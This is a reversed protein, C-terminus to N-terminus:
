LFLEKINKQQKKINAPFQNKCASYQGFQGKISLWQLNQARINLCDHEAFDSLELSELLLCSSIFKAVNIETFNFQLLKLTPLFKFGIFFQPVHITSNTIFVHELALCSFFCSPIMCKEVSNLDIYINKIGNRSLVLMWRGIAENSAHM